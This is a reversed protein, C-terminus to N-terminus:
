KILFEFGSVLHEFRVLFTRPFFGSIIFITLVCFMFLDEKVANLLYQFEYNNRLIEKILKFVTVTILINSLIMLLFVTPYDAALYQYLTQQPPFGITLPMGSLSLLSFLFSVGAIPRKNTLDSFNQISMRKELSELHSVSWTLLSFSILRSGLLYTFPTIGKTASLSVSVLLIGISHLFEYGILKRISKEFFLGISGFVAMIIGLFQLAQFFIPYTRLWAFGNIYKLILIFYISQLLLFIFGSDISDTENFVMPVWSHFPFIALWFIFGLGLLMTAQVLQEPNVPSIEGGALFWGALLIFPMAMTQFILYRSIGKKRDTHSNVLLPISMIVAIEIILASYLFPEVSVAALLFATYTLGFPIFRAHKKIIISIIGWIANFFYVLFILFKDNELLIFSRGLINLISSVGFTILGREGILDIKIFLTLVAFVFSIGIYLNGQIKRDKIIFLFISIVAPFIIWIVPANM